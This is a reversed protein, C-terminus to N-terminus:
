EVKLANHNLNIKTRSNKIEIIERISVLNINKTQLGSIWNNIIKILLPNPHIRGIAFGQSKAISELKMLNDLVNNEDMTEDFDLHINVYGMHLNNSINELLPHSNEDGYVFVLGHNQLLKFIPFINSKSNVFADSKNGYLGIMKNTRSLVWELKSINERSSASHLLTYPGPDQVPDDNPQMPINILVEHEKQVALDVLKEIDSAYPSIDLVIKRNLKLADFLLTKNLGLNAVIIAIGPRNLGVAMNPNTNILNKHAFRTKESEKVVKEKVKQSSINGILVESKDINVLVARGEKIELTLYAKQNFFIM